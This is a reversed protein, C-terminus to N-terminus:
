KFIAMTPAYEIYIESCQLIKTPIACLNFLRASVEKRDALGAMRAALAVVVTCVVSPAHATFSTKRLETTHGGRCVLVKAKGV